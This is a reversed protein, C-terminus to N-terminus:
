YPCFRKETSLRINFDKGLHKRLLSAYNQNSLEWDKQMYKVFFIGNKAVVGQVMDDMEVFM